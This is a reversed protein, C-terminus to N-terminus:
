FMSSNVARAHIINVAPFARYTYIQASRLGFTLAVSCASLIRASRSAGPRPPLFDRFPYRWRGGVNNRFSEPTIVPRASSDRVDRLDMM